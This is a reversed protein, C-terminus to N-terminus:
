VFYVNHKKLLYSSHFLPLDSHIEEIGITFKLKSHRVNTKFSHYRNNLAILSKKTFEFIGKYKYIPM